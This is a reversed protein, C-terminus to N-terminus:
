YLRLGNQPMCEHTQIQCGWDATMATVGTPVAAAGAFDFSKICTAEPDVPYVFTDPKNQTTEVRHPRPGAQIGRNIDHFIYEQSTQVCPRPPTDTACPWNM